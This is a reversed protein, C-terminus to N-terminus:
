AVPPMRGKYLGLPDKVGSGNRATATCRAVDGGESSECQFKECANCQVAAGRKATRRRWVGSGTHM